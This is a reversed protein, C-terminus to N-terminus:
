HMAWKCGRHRPMRAMWLWGRHASSSAARAPRSRRNRPSSATTLYKPLGPLAPRTSLTQVPKERIPLGQEMNWAACAATMHLLLCYTLSHFCNFMCSLFADTHLILLLSRPPVYVTSCASLPPMASFFQRWRVDMGALRLRAKASSSRLLQLVVQDNSEELATRWRNAQLVGGHAAVAATLPLPKLPASM